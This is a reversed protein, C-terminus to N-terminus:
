ADSFTDSRWLRPIQDVRPQQVLKNTPDGNSTGQFWERDIM